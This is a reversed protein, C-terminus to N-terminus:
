DRRGRSRWTSRFAVIALWGLLIGVAGFVVRTEIAGARPGFLARLPGSGHQRSGPGFGIWVFPIALLLIAIPGIWVKLFRDLGSRREEGGTALTVLYLSLLLCLLGVTSLLWGPVRAPMDVMGMTTLLCLFGWFATFAAQFWLGGQRGTTM